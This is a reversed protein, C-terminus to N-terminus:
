TTFEKRLSVVKGDEEWNKEYLTACGTFGTFKFGTQRQWMEIHANLQVDVAFKERTLTLVQRELQNIYVNLRQNEAELLAVKNKM